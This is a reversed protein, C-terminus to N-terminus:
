RSPYAMLYFDREADFAITRIGVKTSYTDSLKGNCYVDTTLEYLYPTELSWLTPHLTTLQAENTYTSKALLLVSASKQTAVLHGQTDKLTNVISISEKSLGDNVVPTKIHVTAKQNNSELMTEIATGFPAVHVTNTKTLWVHRYIGGGEYYWGEELSADARVTIVNDGGYNLYDSINYSRSLYGSPEQGLFFGNCFVQANRYIGEFLISIHKGNDTAPIFFHKRYWGISNQPYKWGVMKYGHSHSAEKSYPLDVVWDHPLNVKTWRSDDFGTWIPGKTQLTAQVKAIYTFYETGHGFDKQMDSANGYSFCWDHDFLTTERGDQAMVNLWLGSLLILSLITKNM